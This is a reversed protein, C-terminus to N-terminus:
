RTINYVKKSFGVVKFHTFLFFIFFYIFTTDHNEKLVERLAQAPNDSDEM